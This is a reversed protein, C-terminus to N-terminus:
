QSKGKIIDSVKEKVRYATELCRKCIEEDPMFDSLVSFAPYKSPLYISDMLDIEDESIDIVLNNENLATILTRISHIKILGTSKEILLAKLYKEVSQQINQLCPNFLSNEMLVIASKLNEEAYKIWLETEKKM